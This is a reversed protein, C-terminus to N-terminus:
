FESYDGNEQSSRRNIEGNSLIVKQCTKQHTTGVAIVLNAQQHKLSNQKRQLRAVEDNRNCFEKLSPLCLCENICLNCSYHHPTRRGLNPFFTGNHYDLSFLLHLCNLMSM